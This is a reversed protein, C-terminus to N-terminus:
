SDASHYKRNLRYLYANLVQYITCRTRVFANLDTELHLHEAINYLLEIPLKLLLMTSNITKNM